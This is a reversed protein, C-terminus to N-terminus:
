ETFYASLADLMVLGDDYQRDQYRIPLNQADPFIYMGIRITYDDLSEFDDFNFSHDTRVIEENDWIFTPYTGNLPRSDSQAIIAGDADVIHVFITADLAPRDVLSRWHLQGLLIGDAGVAFEIHTLAFQENIVVDIPYATDPITPQEQAIKVWDVTVRNDLVLNTESDAPILPANPYLLGSTIRYAGVPLDDPIMFSHLTSV